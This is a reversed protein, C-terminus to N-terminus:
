KVVVKMTQSGQETTVTAYYANGSPLEGCFVYNDKDHDSFTAVEAGQVSYVTVKVQRAGEVEITYRGTTPNPYLSIRSIDSMGDRGAVVGAGKAAYSMSSQWLLAGRALTFTCSDAPIWIDDFRVSEPGTEAPLFVYGDMLLVLSDTPLPLHRTDFTFSFLGDEMGTARLKWIRGLAESGGEVEDFLLPADNDGVMLFSGEAISDTGITLLADEGESRSISQYLGYISDRGIGTIRHHYLGSDAYEWIRVGQGDVYDVPGLTIGYRIALTSQVRRLMANGIRQGFYLIEAVKVSGALTDGGLTLRVFPATSDPATQRLTNIVPIYMTNDTYRIVTNDTLIQETTLGRMSGTDYDLRWVMAETDVVPKYVVVITYDKSYPISDFVLSHANDVTDAPNFNLLADGSDSRWQWVPHVSNGSQASVTSQLCVAAILLLAYPKFLFLTSMLRQRHRNNTRHYKMNLQKEIIILAFTCFYNKDCL